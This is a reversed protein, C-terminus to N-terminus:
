CRVGGVKVSQSYEGSVQGYKIKYGTVRDDRVPNWSVTLSGAMATKSIVLIMGLFYCLKM